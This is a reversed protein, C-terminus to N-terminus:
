SRDHCKPRYVRKKVRKGKPGPNMSLDLYPSPEIIHGEVHPTKDLVVPGAKTHKVFRREHNWHPRGGFHTKKINEDYYWLDDISYNRGNVTSFSACASGILRHHPGAVGLEEYLYGPIAWIPKVEKIDNRSVGFVRLNDNDLLDYSLECDLTKVRVEILDILKKRVKENAQKMLDEYLYDISKKEFERRKESM